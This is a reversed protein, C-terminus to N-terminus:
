QNRTKPTEPTGTNFVGDSCSLKRLFIYVSLRRRLLASYPVAPKKHRSPLVTQMSVVKVLSKCSGLELLELLRLRVLALRRLRVLRQRLHPLTLLVQRAPVRDRPLPLLLRLLSRLEALATGTIAM